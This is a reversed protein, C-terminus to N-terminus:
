VFPNELSASCLPSTEILCHGPGILLFCSFVSLEQKPCEPTQHNQMVMLVVSVLTTTTQLKRQCLLSSLEWLIPSATMFIPPKSTAIDCDM